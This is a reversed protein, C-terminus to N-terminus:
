KEDDIDKSWQNGIMIILMPPTLENPEIAEGQSVQGFATIILPLILLTHPLKNLWRNPRPKETSKPTLNSMHLDHMM